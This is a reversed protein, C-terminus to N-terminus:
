GWAQPSPVKCGETMQDSILPASATIHHDFFHHASSSPKHRPYPYPYASSTRLPFGPLSGDSQHFLLSPPLPTLPAQDLRDSQGGNQGITAGGRHPRVMRHTSASKYYDENWPAPTEWRSTKPNFWASVLMEHGGTEDKPGFLLFGQVM